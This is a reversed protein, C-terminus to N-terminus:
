SSLQETENVINDGKKNHGNNHMIDNMTNDM